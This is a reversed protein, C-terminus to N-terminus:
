VRARSERLVDTVAVQLQEGGVEIELGMTRFPESELHPSIPLPLLQALPALLQQPPHGLGLVERGSHEAPATVVSPASHRGM